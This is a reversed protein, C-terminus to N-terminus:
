EPTICMEPVRVLVESERYYIVGTLSSLDLKALEKQIAPENETMEKFSDYFVSVIYQDMNGGFGVKGILVGKVKTKGIADVVKKLGNKFEQDRGPAIGITFNAILKIDYDEAFPMNLDYQPVLMFEHVSVIMREMASMLSIMGVPVNARPRSLGADMAEPDQLPSVAVYKNAMGFNVTKSITLDTIGMNKMAPIGDKVFQEFELQMGPKVQFISFKYLQQPADESQAFSLNTFVTVLLLICLGVLLRSTLNNMRM